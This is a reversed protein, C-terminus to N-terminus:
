SAPVTAWDPQDDEGDTVQTLGSGDANVIYISEGIADEAAGAAPTGDNRAFVIQTGDPSWDPSYCGFQNDGSWPGGCAPTIPLQSPPTGGDADVVWIAKHNEESTRAVFLIQRGDPSWRGNSGSDDLILGKPTLKKLGTGDINTVFLGLPGQRNSRVFVLQGGNPSFDGPLDFGGPVSTIRTLDGGDSARISYIGNREPDEAGLGLCTLRKGDPSWPGGCYTELERDQPPLARLAGTEADLLHAPMGDDCCLIAIETGDPSWRPAEAV